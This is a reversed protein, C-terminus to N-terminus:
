EGGDASSEVQYSSAQGQTNQHESHGCALSETPHGSICLQLPPGVSSSGSPIASKPDGGEAQCPSAERFCDHVGRDHGQFYLHASQSFLMVLVRVMALNKKVMQYEDLADRTTEDAMNTASPSLIGSIEQFALGGNICRTGKVRGIAEKGLRELRLGGLWGGDKTPMDKTREERPGLSANKAMYVRECLELPVLQRSIIKLSDVPPPFATFVFTCTMCGQVYNIKRHM